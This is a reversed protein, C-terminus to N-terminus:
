LHNILYNKFSKPETIELDIVTKNINSKKFKKIKAYDKESTIIKLNNKKALKIINNIDYSNYNYHDPFIMTKGIKINNQKLLSFFNEPNGIGAFALYKFKLNLSKKNKLIYQGSFIRIKENYIKIKKILNPNKKGNIFVADYNKLESLNERLPGAPLLKANGIGTSSNFCVISLSYNISKEQLGDDLIAVSNKIKNLKTLAKTRSKSIILKTKNKLLEQEDIQDSYDKKIVFLRFENRLIENIKIVLPTKGTGGLYINGVCITKINFKKKITFKKLINILFTLITLPLLILSLFSLNSKDWFKPKLIKNKFM